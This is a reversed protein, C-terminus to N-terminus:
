ARGLLPPPAHVYDRWAGADGVRGDEAAHLINVLERASVYHLRFGQARALEEIGAHFAAREAGINSRHGHEPAGHTHLKVFCWGEAGRVSIGCKLWQRMRHVTPPNQPGLDGNEVRPMIGLKRRKFDLTLPGQVLLLQAPDDRLSHTSHPGSAVPKGRHHSCGASSSKAYYLQNVVPAQTRHPASPMTLDAYCGEQKLLRLEDRVGCGRGEPDSDDLAWNGHIFGFVPKPGGGLLGHSRLDKVGQRLSKVLNDPTDNHHHLHVEVENCTARCLDALSAIVEADYQEIPYFFTHKARQGDHDRSPEILAPLRAHWEAMRRLAGAKDTHHFPEFHDCVTVMVDTIPAKRRLLSDKLWPLLWRDMAKIM